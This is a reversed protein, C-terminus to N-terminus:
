DRLEQYNKMVHLNELILGLDNFKMLSHIEDILSFVDENTLEINNIKEIATKFRNVFIKTNDNYEHDCQMIINLNTIKGNPIFEVKLVDDVENVKLTFDKNSLGEFSTSKGDIWYNTIFKFNKKM